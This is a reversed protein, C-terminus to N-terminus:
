DLSEAVPIDSVTTIEWERPLETSGKVNELTLTRKWTGSSRDAAMTLIADFLTTDVNRFGNWKLPAAMIAVGGKELLASRLIRLRKIVEEESTWSVLDSISDLVLRFPLVQRQSLSSVRALIWQPRDCRERRHESNYSIELLDTVLIGETRFRDKRMIRELDESLDELFSVVELDSREGFKDLAKRIEKDTEYTSIYVPHAEENKEALFQKLLTDGASGPGYRMLILGGDRIREKIIDSLESNGALLRM